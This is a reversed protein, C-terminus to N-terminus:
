GDIKSCIEDIRDQSLWSQSSELWVEGAENIEVKCNTHESFWDEITNDQSENTAANEFWEKSIKGASM